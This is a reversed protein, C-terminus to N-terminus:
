LWRALRPGAVLSLCEGSAHWRGLGWWTLAACGMEVCTGKRLRVAFQHPPECEVRTWESHHYRYRRCDAAGLM